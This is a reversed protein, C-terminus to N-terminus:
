YRSPRNVCFYNSFIIKKQNSNNFINKNIISINNHLLNLLKLYILGNFTNGHIGCIRYWDDSEELNKLAMVFRGFEEPYNNKLDVINYRKYKKALFLNKM